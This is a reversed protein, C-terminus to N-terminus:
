YNRMEERFLDALGEKAGKVRGLAKKHQQDREAAQQQLEALQNTIGAVESQVSRAHRKAAKLVEYQEKFPTPDKPASVGEDEEANMESHFLEALGTKAAGVRGLAGEYQQSKDAGQQQLEVLQTGIDNVDSRATRANVKASRLAEYGLDFKTQGDIQDRGNSQSM